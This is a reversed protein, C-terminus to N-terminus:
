FGFPKKLIRGTKKLAAGLKSEKKSEKRSDAGEPGSTREEQRTPPPASPKVALKGVTTTVGGARKRPAEAAPRVKTAPPQAPSPRPPEPAPSPARAPTVPAPTINAQSGAATAGVPAHGTHETATQSTRIYYGSTLIAAPILVSILLALFRRRLRAALPRTQRTAAGHPGPSAAPVRELERGDMDCRNEDDEYIFNCDPCRKM